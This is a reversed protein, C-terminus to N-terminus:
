VCMVNYVRAKEGRSFLCGGLRREASFLWRAAMMEGTM